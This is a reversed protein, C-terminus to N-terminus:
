ASKVVSGTDSMQLRYGTGRFGYMGAVLSDIWAQVRLRLGM